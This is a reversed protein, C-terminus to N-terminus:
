SIKPVSWELSFAKKNEELKEIYISPKIWANNEYLSEEQGVSLEPYCNNQHSDDARADSCAKSSVHLFSTFDGDQKASFSLRIWHTGSEVRDRFADFEELSKSEDQTLIMFPHNRKRCSETLCIYYEFNEDDIKYRHADLTILNGIVTIAKAFNKNYNVRYTNEDDSFSILPFDSMFFCNEKLLLLQDHNFTSLISSLIAKQVLPAQTPRGSIVFYIADIKDLGIEKLSKYQLNTTRDLLGRLITSDSIFTEDEWWNKNKSKKFEQFSNNLKEGATKQSFSEKQILKYVINTYGSQNKIEEFHVLSNSADTTLGGIDIRCCLIRFAKNDLTTQDNHTNQSYIEHMLNINDNGEKDEFFHLSSSMRIMEKLFYLEGAGSEDASITVFKSTREDKALETYEELVQKWKPTEECLLECAKIVYRCYGKRLNEIYLDPVTVRIGSITPLSDNKWYEPVVTEIGHDIQITDQHSTILTLTHEIIFKLYLVFEAPSDQKEGDPYNKFNDIFSNKISEFQENKEYANINNKEDLFDFVKITDEQIICSSPFEMNEGYPIIYEEANNNDIDHFRRPLCLAVTRYSGIDLFLIHDEKKSSERPKKSGNDSYFFEGM